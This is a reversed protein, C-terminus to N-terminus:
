FVARISEVLQAFTLRPTDEAGAPLVFLVLALLPGATLYARWGELARMARTALIMCITGV